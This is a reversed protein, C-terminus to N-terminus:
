GEVDPVQGEVRVIVELGIQYRNPFCLHGQEDVMKFYAISTSDYTPAKLLVPIKALEGAGTDPIDYYRASTILGPGTKPGQRELRRGKWAVSGSNRITWTKTFVEGPAFCQGNPVDEDVFTSADGPLARLFAPPRRGGYRRRDQEDAEIVVEFLSALIGDAEFTQDYFLMLSRSPTTAGQEVRSIHAPSCGYQTAVQEGTWGHVIRAKQMSWALANRAQRPNLFPPKWPRAM